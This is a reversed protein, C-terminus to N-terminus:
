KFISSVIRHICNYLLNLPEIYEALFAHEFKFTFRNIFLRDPTRRKNQILKRRRIIYLRMRIIDAYARIKASLIRNALCYGITAFETLLLVPLLLIFSQRSYNTMVMIMRNREAFYFKEPARSSWGHGWKHYVLATPVYTLKLGMLLARWSWDTDEDFSFFNEDLLGIKEIAKRSAFICTGHVGWVEKLNDYQGEDVEGGGRLLGFGAIHIMLGTSNIIRKDNIMLIKPQSFDAGSQIAETVLENLWNSDVITDSNLLVLFEGDAARIGTNNGACFGVNYKKRLLLFDYRKKAMDASGDTSGNDVVIVEFPSYTSAFVSNLCPELVEKGNYNLIIVSVLPNVTESM